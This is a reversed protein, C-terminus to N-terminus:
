CQHVHVVCCVRREGRFGIFGLLGLGACLLDGTVALHQWSPTRSIGDPGPRAGVAAEFESGSIVYTYRYRCIYIYIYIHIYIYVYIYIYIYINVHVHM